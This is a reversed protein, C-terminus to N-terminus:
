EALLGADPLPLCGYETFVRDPHHLFPQDFIESTSKLSASIMWVVPFLHLLVGFWLFVAIGNLQLRTKLRKRGVQPILPM